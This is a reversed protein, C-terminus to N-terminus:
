HTRARKAAPAGGLKAEHESGDMDPHDAQVLQFGEGGPAYLQENIWALWPKDEPPPLQMPPLMLWKAVAIHDRKNPDCMGLLEEYVERPQDARDLLAPLYRPANEMTWVLFSTDKRESEWCEKTYKPLTTPLEGPGFTEVLATVLEDMDLRFAMDMARCLAQARADEDFIGLELLKTFTAPCKKVCWCLISPQPKAKDVADHCEGVLDLVSRGARQQKSEEDACRITEICLELLATNCNAVATRLISNLLNSIVNLHLATADASVRFARRFLVRMKDTRRSESIVSDWVDALSKVIFEATCGAGGHLFGTTKGKLRSLIAMYWYDAVSELQGLSARQQDLQRHNDVDEFAAEMARVCDKDPFGLALGTVDRMWDCLQEVVRRDRTGHGILQLMPVARVTPLEHPEIDFQNYLHAATFGGVYEAFNIKAQLPAPARHASLRFSASAWTPGARPMELDEHRPVIAINPAALLSWHSRSQVLPDKSELSAIYEVTQQAPHVIRCRQALFDNQQRETLQTHNTFLWKLLLMLPTKSVGVDPIRRASDKPWQCVLQFLIRHLDICERMSVWVNMWSRGAFRHQLWGCFISPNRTLSVANRAHKMDWNEFVTEAHETDKVLDHFLSDDMDKIMERAAHLAGSTLADLLLQRRVSPEAQKVHPLLHLMAFELSKEMSEQRDKSHLYEIPDLTIPHDISGM